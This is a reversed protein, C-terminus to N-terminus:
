LAVTWVDITSWALFMHMALICHAMTRVKMPVFWIVGAIIMTAHPNMIIPGLSLAFSFVRNIAVCPLIQSDSALPLRLVLSSCHMTILFAAFFM